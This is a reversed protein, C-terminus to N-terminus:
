TNQNGTARMASSIKNAADMVIPGLDRRAKEVDWSPRYVPIHVAAVPEGRFDIVPAAVSIENPLLQESTSSFGDKRAKKIMASIKKKDTITKPLYAHRESREVIDMARDPDLRSLYAFGSSTCTIPVKRGTVTAMYSANQHPIRVTYIMETDIPESLNVTTNFINGAEILRPMAIAGVNSHRLYTFALEMMKKSPRYRRTKEDKDLYGLQHLTNSFRQAASKDLGTRLAIETVGLEPDVGSFADLVRFGKELSGVYLASPRQTNERVAKSATSTTKSIKAEGM